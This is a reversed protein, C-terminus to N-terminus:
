INLILYMKILKIISSALYSQEGFSLVELNMKLLENNNLFEGSQSGILFLLKKKSILENRMDVFSKGGEELMFINYGMEKQKQIAEFISLDKVKVSKLPNDVLIDSKKGNRIIEVFSDTLLLEDNPFHQNSVMESTFVYTDYNKLFIWIEVETNKNNNVLAALICRSIVDLRGSSGPINKITYNSIDVTSSHMFFVLKM